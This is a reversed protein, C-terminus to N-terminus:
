DTDKRIVALLEYVTNSPLSVNIKTLREAKVYSVSINEPLIRMNGEQHIAYWGQEPPNREEISSEANVFRAADNFSLWGYFSFEFDSLDAILVTSVDWFDADRDSTQETNILVFNSLSKERYVLQQIDGLTELSIQVLAPQESFIPSSAVLEVQKTNGSFYIQVKDDENKVIYPLTSSLLKQMADVAIGQHTGQWFVDVRKQWKQTYLSYAYYGSFLIMMLLSTALMLEILTFGIHKKTRTPITKM